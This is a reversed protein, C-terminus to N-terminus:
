RGFTMKSYDKINGSHEGNEWFYSAYGFYTKYVKM